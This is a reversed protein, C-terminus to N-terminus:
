WRSGQMKEELEVELGQQLIPASRKGRTHEKTLNEVNCWWKLVYREVYGEDPARWLM